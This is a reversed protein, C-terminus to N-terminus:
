VEKNLFENIMSWQAKFDLHVVALAVSVLLFRAFIERTRNGDLFGLHRRRKRVSFLKADRKILAGHSEPNRKM